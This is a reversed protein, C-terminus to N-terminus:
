FPVCDACLLSRSPKGCEECKRPKRTGALTGHADDRRVAPESAAMAERLGDLLERCVGAAWETAAPDDIEEVRHWDITELDALLAALADLRTQGQDSSEPGRCVARFATLATQSKTYTLM